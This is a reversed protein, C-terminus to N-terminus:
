KVWFEKKLEKDDEMKKEEIKGKAKDCLDKLEMVNLEQSRMELYKKNNLKPDEIIESLLVDLIAGIKPGPKIELIKMLVGGNIKIMKVSVPDKRVKKMIYELHRLKYPKAKPVGSGLRDAIRLDILDALNEEGVKKILRRVSSETVEGVNYYFMHNYILTTVKDIDENSFKLRRMIKKVVKAGVIDHNYFTADGKIFKKTQPKAIDHLLSAFRVRWDKSPCYKLSLMSHKFVTYTHHRNQNVDIGRELEPLIYQLLKTNHLLMIGDYSKGSELIKILEDKIRENAVFKIGGAMRKIARETKPEIAFGLQCSLRIARIMRLADEKFRNIPEGVARIIKKKLDKQGGFLDVINGKIDMAIANVTFDRRGLDKELSDEFKIEDPHRRDSYGQESRYTTIEVVQKESLLMPLEFGFNEQNFKVINKKLLDQAQKINLLKYYKDPNYSDKIWRIYGELNIERAVRTRRVDIGDIIDAEKIIEQELSRGILEFNSHDIIDVIANVVDGNFFKKLEKNAIIQSEQVHRKDSYKARGVDHFYTAIEIIDLNVNYDKAIELANRVVNKTHEIGHVPCEVKELYKKAIKIAKDKDKKNLKIDKTIIPLDSIPFRFDSIPVIVTGFKNEYKGNPFIKLIEKPRANTTIDWDKPEKRKVNPYDSGSLPIAALKIMLLDRVCGGVIYAEYKNEELKKLIEEVNKIIEM